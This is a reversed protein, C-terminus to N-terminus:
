PRKAGGQNSVAPKGAPKKRQSASDTNKVPANKIEAILDACDADKGPGTEILPLLAALPNILGLLLAGGGRLALTADPSVKPAAFTGTVTFPTRAVLISVHKPLPTVKLDLREDAFNANGDVRILTNDTDLLMSRTALLGNTMGLDAIGCRVNTRRDGGVLYRLINPADLGLLEVLLDSLQGRGMALQASGNSTALMAAISNSKGDLKVTGNLRGLAAKTNKLSPVLRELQLDRFRASVHTQIPNARGDFRFDGGMQGGAFGFSLPTLSLVTDQMVAHMNLNDFPLAGANKINKGEFRIDADLTSWKQTSFTQQPLLKAPRPAPANTAAKAAATRPAPSKGVTPAFDALDLQKSVMTGSIFPRKERSEFAVSGAIDSSGFRGTFRDYHWVRDSLTVEGRTSYAPTEPLGVGAIRHWEGLTAGSLDLKFRAAKVATIGTVNGAAAVHTQGIVAKLDFDYPITQDRLRLVNGGTATGALKLGNWKGSAKLEIGSAAGAEPKASITAADVEVDTDKHKVVYALHGKTFTLEDITPATSSDSQKKDLYWNRRGDASEELQLDPADVNVRPLVLRKHILNGLSVTADVRDVTLMDPRGAWSPNAFRLKDATIRPGQLWYLTLDGDVTLQRGTSQEVKDAITGRLFNLKWPFLFSAAIALIVVLVIM